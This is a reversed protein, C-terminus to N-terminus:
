FRRGEKIGFKLYHQYPNAGAAKVDPNLALYREADFSIQRWKSEFCDLYLRHVLKVPNRNFNPANGLYDILVDITEDSLSQLFSDAEKSLDGCRLDSMGRSLNMGTISELWECDDDAIAHNTLEVPVSFKGPLLMSVVSIFVRRAENLRPDGDLPSVLSNLIYICKVAETSLSENAFKQPALKQLDLSAVACFDSVADGGVFQGNKFYRLCVNEAGFLRIFKEFRARYSPGRLNLNNIGHKINEQWNSEVFSSPDRFYGIVSIKACSKKFVNAIDVVGKEPILSIDEGSFIIRERCLDDLSKEIAELCEIKKKEIGSVSLGASKWIHYNHHDGSFATYFPISHNVYGLDAYRTVGDDYGNLANQISSSGTKHMGVHLIIEKM